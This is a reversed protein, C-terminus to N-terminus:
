SPSKAPRAVATKSSSRLCARWIVYSSLDTALFGEVSAGATSYGHEEQFVVQHLFDGGGGGYEAPMGVQLLGAAGAQRFIDRPFMGEAEWRAVHPEVEKRFFRRVTERFQHHEESFIEREVM